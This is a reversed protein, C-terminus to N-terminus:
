TSPQSQLSSQTPATANLSVGLSHLGPHHLGAPQAGGCWGASAVSSLIVRYLTFETYIYRDLMYRHWRPGSCGAARQESYPLSSCTCAGPVHTSCSQARDEEFPMSMVLNSPTYRQARLLWALAHVFNSWHYQCEKCPFKSPAVTAEAVQCFSYLFKWCLLKFYLFKVFYMIININLYTIFVIFKHVILLKQM